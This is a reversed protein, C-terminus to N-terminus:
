SLWTMFCGADMAWKRLYFKSRIKTKDFQALLQQIFELKDDSFVYLRQYSDLAEEIETSHLLMAYHKSWYVPIKKELDFGAFKAKWEIEKLITYSATEDLYQKCPSDVMTDDGITIFSHQHGCVDESMWHVFCQIHSNDSLTNVLGSKQLGFDQQQYIEGSSLIVLPRDFSDSYTWDVLEYWLPPGVVMNKRFEKALQIMWDTVTWDFSSKDMSCPNSFGMMVAEASGWFPHWRLKTPLRWMHQAEAENMEDFLLHDLIQKYLPASFIIRWRGEQAKKLTIPEDKLFVRFPYHVRNNVFVQFESYLRVLIHEPIKVGDWQFLDSNTPYNRCLPYGPSADMNLSYCVEKFREYSLFDSSIMTKISAM